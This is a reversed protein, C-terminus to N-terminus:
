LAVSQGTRASQYAAEAVAVNHRGEEGSIPVPKGSLVAEVFHRLEQRIPQEVQLDGVRQTQTEGDRRSWRIEGNPSFGDTYLITGETGQVGGSNSPLASVTSSHLMGVAGNTFRLSLFYLNPYDSPDETGYHDAEAYVRTAPGCLQTM